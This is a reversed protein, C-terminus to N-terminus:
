EEIIQGDSIMVIRDAYKAIDPDHTVMIITVGNDRNIQTLLEIIQTSTKEDLNGTPEDALILMPNNALARAIAVRQQQGGSLQSPRSKLKDALGVQTLLEVARKKLESKRRGGSIVMPFEVNELVTFKSILNFNQFVFGIKKNRFRANKKSNSLKIETDDFIYKGSDFGDMMGLINLLTSKGGGSTGMISVFEGKKVKLNVNRLVISRTNGAKYSKFVKSLEIM